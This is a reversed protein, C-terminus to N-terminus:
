HSAARHCFLARGGAGALCADLTEVAAPVDAGEGAKSFSVDAM